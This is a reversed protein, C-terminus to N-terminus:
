VCITKNKNKKKNALWITYLKVKILLTELIKGTPSYIHITISREALVKDKNMRDEKLTGLMEM